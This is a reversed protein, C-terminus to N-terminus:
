VVAETLVDLSGVHHMLAKLAWLLELAEVRRCSLVGSSLSLGKANSPTRGQYCMNQAM